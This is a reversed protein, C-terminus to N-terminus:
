LQVVVLPVGGHSFGLLSFSVSPFFRFRFFALHHDRPVLKSRRRVDRPIALRLGPGEPDGAFRRVPVGCTWGSFVLCLFLLVQFVVSSMGCPAEKSGPSGGLAARELRGTPCRTWSGGCPTKNLVGWLADREFGGAPCRTRSGGCPM